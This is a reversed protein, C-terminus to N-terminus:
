GTSPVEVRSPLGGAPATFCDAPRALNGEVPIWRVDVLNDLAVRLPQYLALGHWFEEDVGLRAGQQAALRALEGPAEGILLLYGDGANVEHLLIRRVLDALGDVTPQNSEALRLADEASTSGICQRRTPLDFASGARARAQATCRVPAPIRRTAASESASRSRRAPPRRMEAACRVPSRSCEPAFRARDM